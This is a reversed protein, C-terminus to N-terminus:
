KTIVSLYFSSWDSARFGNCVEQNTKKTNLYNIIEHM